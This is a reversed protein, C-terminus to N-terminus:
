RTKIWEGVHGECAHMCAHKFSRTGLGLRESSDSRTGEMDHTPADSGCAAAAARVGACGRGDGAARACVPAFFGGGPLLNIRGHGSCTGNVYRSVMRM